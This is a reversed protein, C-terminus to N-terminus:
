ATMKDRIRSALIKERASLERENALRCHQLTAGRIAAEVVSTSPKLIRLDIRKPGSIYFGQADFAGHEVLYVRRRQWAAIEDLRFQCLAQQKFFVVVAEGPLGHDHLWAAVEEGPQDAAPCCWAGEDIELSHAYGCLRSTRKGPEIM